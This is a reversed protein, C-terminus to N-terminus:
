LISEGNLNTTLISSMYDVFPRVEKIANDIRTAFYKDLVEDNEFPIIFLYQKKRILDIDPHNRDFNKPATKLESGKLEGWISKFTTANIIQRFDDAFVEFEKRIRLLDSPEPEWFGCALFSDSSSLHLYYGGRLNPKTRKFAIGFHTKFPTKNKSFRVDRYIRFVKWLELSDHINITDYLQQSFQKIENEIRKFESKHKNFWDRNNNKNLQNFFDFIEPCVRKM